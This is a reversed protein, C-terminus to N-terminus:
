LDAMVTVHCFSPHSHLSTKPRKATEPAGCTATFVRNHGNKHDQRSGMVPFRQATGSFAGNRADYGGFREAANNNRSQFSIRIEVSCNAVTMLDRKGVAIRDTRCGHLIVGRFVVTEPAAGTRPHLGGGFEPLHYIRGRPVSKEHIHENGRVKLPLVLLDRQCHLRSERSVVLDLQRNTGSAPLAECESDPM